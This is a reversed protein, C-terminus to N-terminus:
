RNQGAPYEVYLHARRNLRELNMTSKMLEDISDKFDKIVDSAIGLALISNMSVQQSVLLSHLEKASSVIDHMFMICRRDPEDYGRLENIRDNIERVKQTKDSLARKFGNISDLLDNIQNEESFSYKNERNSFDSVSKAIKRIESYTLCGM